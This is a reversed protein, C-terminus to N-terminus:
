KIKNPFYDPKPKPIEGGDPVFWFELTRKYDIYGGFIIKVQSSKIGYKKLESQANNLMNEAVSKEDLDRVEEEIEQGNEQEFVSFVNTGLYAIVYIKHDSSEELFKKVILLTDKSYENEPFGIKIIGSKSLNPKNKRTVINNNDSYFIIEDFQTSKEPIALDDECKEANLDKLLIFLQTKLRKKDSNCKQIILRDASFNRMEFFHPLSLEGRLQSQKKVEIGNGFVRILAKSKPFKQVEFIFLDLKEVLNNSSIQGFENFLIPESNVTQGHSIFSLILVLVIQLIFKKM